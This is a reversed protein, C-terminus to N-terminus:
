KFYETLAQSRCENVLDFEERIISLAQPVALDPIGWGLSTAYTKLGSAALSARRHRLQGCDMRFILAGVVRPRSVSGDAFEVLFDRIKQSMGVYKRFGELGVRTHQGLVWIPLVTRPPSDLFIDDTAPGIERDCEGAAFLMPALISGTKQLGLLSTEILREQTGDSAARNIADAWVKKNIGASPLDGVFGARVSMLNATHLVGGVPPSHRPMEETEAAEFLAIRSERLIHCRSVVDYLDDSSRDKTAAAMAHIIANAVTTCGGLRVRLEANTGVMIAMMTVDLDGLGIDELAIIPVRRWFYDPFNELLFSSAQWALEFEDRRIAKQLLSAALYRDFTPLSTLSRATYSATLDHLRGLIADQCFNLSLMTVDGNKASANTVRTIVISCLFIQLLPNLETPKYLSPARKNM